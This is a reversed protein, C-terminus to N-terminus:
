RIWASPPPALVDLAEWVDDPITVDTLAVTQDIRAPTSAGVVTSAIRPDRLSFQLAAAALSVGAGRCLEAMAVAADVQAPSGMGYAYRASSSPGKALIGGGYPAANVVGMGLRTAAAIVPEASRDILSFRNHTLVVDFIGTEVLELLEPIRGAAIGIHAAVGEEKLALMAQVPGDDALADAVSVHEEPDHLYLLQFSDIGLRELSEAASERVRAGPFEHSGSVPDTKTALVFDDPLGGREAIAAGIRRESEGNSYGNSTDLFRIDSDFARLVTAVADEHTIDHGYVGPMGGLPSGGLCVSSVQLDTKGLLRRGIM